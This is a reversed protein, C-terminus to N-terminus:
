LKNSLNSVFLHVFRVVLMNHVFAISLIDKVLNLAFDMGLLLWFINIQRFHLYVCKFETLICVLNWGCSIFNCM